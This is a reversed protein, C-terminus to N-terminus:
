RAIPKKTMGPAEAYYRRTFLETADDSAGALQTKIQRNYLARMQQVTQRQEAATNAGLFSRRLNEIEGESAGAGTVAVKYADFAQNFARRGIREDDSLGLREGFLNSKIDATVNAGKIGSEGTLSELTDIAQGAQPLKMENLKDAIHRTEENLEKNAKSGKGVAEAEKIDLERAKFAMEIAQKRQEAAARVAAAAAAQAASLKHQQMSADLQSQQREIGAILAESRAQVAPNDLRQAEAAIHGKMSEFMMNKLQLSATRDDGWKARMQGLANMDGANKDKAAEIQRTQEAIDKDIRAGIADLVQNRGGNMGQAFGGLAGGIIALAQLGNDSKMLKQPDVKMQSVRAREAKLEAMDAEFRQSHERDIAAQEAYDEQRQREAAQTADATMANKTQVARSEAQAANSEAGFTGLTRANAADVGAQLNGFSPMSPGGGQAGQQGLAPPVNIQPMASGQPQAAPEMPQPAGEPTVAAPQPRRPEAYYAALQNAIPGGVAGAYMRGIPSSTLSHVIRGGIGPEGAAAPPPPPPPPAVPAPVPLSPDPVLGSMDDYFAM